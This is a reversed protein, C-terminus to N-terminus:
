ILKVIEANKFSSIEDFGKKESLLTSLARGIASHSVVLITDADLGNLFELGIAARAILNDSHEVGDYGNIKLGSQYDSGELSGLEREMFLDSLIIKNEAYGIQEAVIRASDFARKMPSSVILDVKVGDLAKAAEECQKVGEEALPTDTRGSFLGIKNMESLGHRMFYLHKM